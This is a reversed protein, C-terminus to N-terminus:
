FGALKLGFDEFKLLSIYPGNNPMYTFTVTVPSLLLLCTKTGEQMCVSVSITTLKTYGRM